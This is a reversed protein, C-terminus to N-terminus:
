DINLFLKYKLCFDDLIEKLVKGFTYYHFKRAEDYMKPKNNYREYLLGRLEKIDDADNAFVDVNFMPDDHKSIRDRLFHIIGKPCPLCSVESCWESTSDNKKLYYEIEFLCERIGENNSDPNYYIQYIM